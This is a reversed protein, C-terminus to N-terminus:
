DIPHNICEHAIGLLVPVAIDTRLIRDGLNVLQFNRNQFLLVEDREWGGEPGVAIVLHKPIDNGSSISEKICNNIYTTFRISKSSEIIGKNEINNSILTSNTSIEELQPHAIVKLSGQENIIGNLESNIFERFNRKIYVKPLICDVEAQALGEMLLKKM